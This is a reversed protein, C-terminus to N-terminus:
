ESLPGTPIGRIKEIPFGREVLGNIMSDHSSSSQYPLLDFAPMVAALHEMIGSQISEYHSWETDNTFCYIQLPLGYETPSLTRVMILMGKHLLPHCKLYYTVYARFLGLNTDTTGYMKEENVGEGVDGLGSSMLNIFHEMEPSFGRMKDLFEPTCVKINDTKITYGRMIRRGGSESMGRWNIFSGSILSYPPITVITNDFNRVKVITLSMDVVVGNIASGPMEIWDGLRMMDNELLLIGGVFGLITDKFVLMLVAAFAGLGGILYFPSKDTLISIIIIATILYVVIKTIQVFGKIPKDHYRKNSYAVDGFSSLLATLSLMITICFYIWTIKEALMALRPKDDFAVPLLSLVMLPPVISSLRKLVDFEVLKTLLTFQRHHQVRRIVRSSIIHTLRGAVYAVLLIIIIYILTDVQAVIIDPVGVRGLAEKINAFLSRAIYEKEM